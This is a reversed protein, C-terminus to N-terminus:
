RRWSPRQTLDQIGRIWEPIKIWLILAIAMTMCIKIALFEAEIYRFNGASAQGYALSFIISAVAMIVLGCIARKM